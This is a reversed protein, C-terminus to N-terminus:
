KKVLVHERSNSLDYATKMDYTAESLETEFDQYGHLSCYHELFTDMQDNIGQKSKSWMNLTVKKNNPAPVEVFSKYEDCYQSTDM